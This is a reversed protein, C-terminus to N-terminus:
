SRWLTFLSSIRRVFGIIPRSSKLVTIEKGTVNLETTVSYKKKAIAPVRLAKRMGRASLLSSFLMGTITLTTLSCFPMHIMVGSGNLVTLADIISIVASFVALADAGIKRRFCNLVANTIVDLSLIMVTFEIALCSASAVKLTSLMGPAPAGLSLYVSVATLILALRARLRLSHVHSGYYKSASLPDLEEGLFEGEANASGTTGDMPIGGRLHLLISAIRSSLYEKFSPAPVYEDEKDFAGSYEESFENDEAAASGKKKKRKKRDPKIEESEEPLDSSVAYEKEKKKHFLGSIKSKIGDPEEESVLGFQKDLEYEENEGYSSKLEEYDPAANPSYDMEQTSSVRHGAFSYDRRKKGNDMRDLRFRPDFDPEEEESAPAAKVEDASGSDTEKETEEGYVSDFIESFVDDFNFENNGNM